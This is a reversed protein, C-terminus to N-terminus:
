SNQDNREANRQTPSGPGKRLIRGVGRFIQDLSAENEIKTFEINLRSPIRIMASLTESLQAGPARACSEDSEESYKILAPKMKLKALNTSHGGVVKAWGSEGMTIPM